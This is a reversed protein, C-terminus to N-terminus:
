QNKVFDYVSGPTAIYNWTYTHTLTPTYKSYWKNVENVQKQEM